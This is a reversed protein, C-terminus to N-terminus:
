ADDLPCNSLAASVLQEIETEGALHRNAVFICRKAFGSNADLMSDHKKFYAISSGFYVKRGVLSAHHIKSLQKSSMGSQRLYELIAVLDFPRM